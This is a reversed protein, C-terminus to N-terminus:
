NVFVFFFIVIIILLFILLCNGLCLCNIIIKETDKLSKSNVIKIRKELILGTRVQDVALGRVESGDEVVKAM